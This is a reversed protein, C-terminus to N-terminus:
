SAFIFDHLRVERIYYQARPSRRDLHYEETYTLDGSIHTAVLFVEQEAGTYISDLVIRM